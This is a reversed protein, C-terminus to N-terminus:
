STYNFMIDWENQCTEHVTIFVHKKKGQTTTREDGNMNKIDQAVAQIQNGFSSTQSSYQLMLATPQHSKLNQQANTNWTLGSFVFRRELIYNASWLPTSHYYRLLRDLIDNAKVISEIKLISSFFISCNRQRQSCSTTSKSKHLECNRSLTDNLILFLYYKYKMRWLMIGSDKFSSTAFCTSSKYYKWSICVTFAGGEYKLMGLLYKTLYIYNFTM